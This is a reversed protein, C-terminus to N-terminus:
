GAQKAPDGDGPALPEVFLTKERSYVATGPASKRPRRVHRRETYVVPVQGSHKARSFHAAVQAARELIATPPAQTTGTPRRLIVHAGQAGYAHLWIDTPAALKHTLIDNDARSRGVWVVWDGAIPYSKYPLRVPQAASRPPQIAGTARLEAVARAIAPADDQSTLQELHVLIKEQQKLKTLRARARSSRRALRRATHFAREAYAHPREGPALEIQISDGTYPDDLEIQGPKGRLTAIAALVAEGRRRWLTADESEALERETQRQASRLRAREKEIYGVLAERHVQHELTANWRALWTDMLQAFTTRDPQPGPPGPRLAGHDDLVPLACYHVLARAAGATSTTAPVVRDVEAQSVGRLTTIDPWTSGILTEARRRQDGELCELEIGFPLQYAAGRQMSRRDPRATGPARVACAIQPPTGHAVVVFPTRPLLECFIWRPARNAARPHPALALILLREWALPVITEFLSGALLQPAEGLQTTLARPVRRPRQGAVRLHPAGPRVSVVLTGASTLLALEDQSWLEARRLRTGAFEADLHNALARLVLLHMREDGAAIEKRINSWSGYQQVKRAGTGAADNRAECSEQSRVSRM